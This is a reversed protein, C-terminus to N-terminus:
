LSSLCLVICPLTGPTTERKQPETRNNDSIPSQLPPAPPPDLAPTTPSSAPARKPKFTDKVRDRLAKFSKKGTM